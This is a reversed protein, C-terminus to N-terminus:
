YARTDSVLAVDAALAPAHADLAPGLHASGIEEEGDLVMTIDVPM